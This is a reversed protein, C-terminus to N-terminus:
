QAAQGKVQSPIQGDIASLSSAKAAFKQTARSLKQPLDPKISTNINIKAPVQNVAATLGADNAAKVVAGVRERARNAREVMAKHYDGGKQKVNALNRLTVELDVLAGVAYLRRKEEATAPRNTPKSPAGPSSLFNHRVEGQSWTVLEFDSGAKHKGKNVLTENPVTHCGYCNSAIDYTMESHIMGKAKAAGLRAARDKASESKGEGWKLTKGKPNGAVKNHINNWDKAPAHCSECSVGWKVRVKGRALVSTYHCQYCQDSRKMSKIGLNKLIAKAEKSRHRDKFTRFHRTQKWAEIENAHCNACANDSGEPGIVKAIVATEVEAASGVSPFWVAIAALAVGVVVHPWYKQLM